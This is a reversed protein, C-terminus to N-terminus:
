EHASVNIKTTKKLIWAFIGAVGLWFLQRARRMLSVVLWIENSQIGIADLMVKNGYEEVGVQGPVIAGVTKFLIVGMEVAIANIVSVDIDMWRLIIFFEAAGFIWHIVSLLFAVLFKWKNNKYYSSCLENVEYSSSVLKETLFSWKTTRRLREVLKGFYLNKHLLFRALLYGLLILVAGIILVFINSNQDGVIGFMLYVTSIIILFIASLIILVRSLLISSIGKKKDIGKKNLYIAKLSEGAVISTPNFLSLMEGVNRIMFIERISTKHREEGLCLQWAWSACLYALFSVGIVGLLMGPMDYIYRKLQDFDISSIFKAILSLVIVLLGIKFYQQYKKVFAIVDM